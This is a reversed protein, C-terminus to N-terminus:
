WHRHIPLASHGSLKGTTPAPPPEKPPAERRRRRYAAPRPNRDESPHLGGRRPSRRPLGRPADGESRPRAPLQPQGRPWKRSDLRPPPFRPRSRRIRVFRAQHEGRGPPREGLAVAIERIV